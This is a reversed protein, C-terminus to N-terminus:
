ANKKIMVKTPHRLANIPMNASTLLPLMASILWAMLMSIPNPIQAGSMPPIAQTTSSKM